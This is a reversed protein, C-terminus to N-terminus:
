SDRLSAFTAVNICKLPLVKHNKNYNLTRIISVNNYRRTRLVFIEENIYLWYLRAHPKLM